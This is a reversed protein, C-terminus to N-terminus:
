PSTSKGCLAAFMPQMLVLANARRDNDTKRPGRRMRLDSSRLGRENCTPPRSRTRRPQLHENRAARSILWAHDDVELNDGQCRCGRSDHPIVHM